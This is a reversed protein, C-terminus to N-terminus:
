NIQMAKDQIKQINKCRLGRENMAMYKYIDSRQPSNQAAHVDM